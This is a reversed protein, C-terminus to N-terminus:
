NGFLNCFCNKNKKLKKLGMPEVQRAAEPELRQVIQLAEKARRQQEEEDEPVAPQESAVRSRRTDERPTAVSFAGPRLIKLEEESERQQAM